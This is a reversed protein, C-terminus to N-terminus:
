RCVYLYLLSPVYQLEKLQYVRNLTAKITDRDSYASQTLQLSVKLDEQLNKMERIMNVRPSTPGSIANKEKSINNSYSRSNLDSSIPEREMIQLM